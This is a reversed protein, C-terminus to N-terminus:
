RTSESLQPPGLALSTGRGEEMDGEDMDEEDRAQEPDQPLPQYGGHDDQDEEDSDGEEEEMMIHVGVRPEDEGTPSEGSDGEEEERAGRGPDNLVGM